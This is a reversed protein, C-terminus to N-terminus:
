SHASASDVSSRAPGKDLVDRVTRGLVDLSFPKQLFATRQELVGVRIVADDTYGSVFLVRLGPRLRALRQALEAGNMQPMIVDTVLLDIYDGYRGALDLAEVGNRAVLVRYGRAELAERVMSRVADEDEVVLITEAGHIAEGVPREPEEVATPEEVRPLYVTFTSGQGPASKVRIHGGARQVIGYVTSLGLGTGKGASKTTFFPEFLHALTHEDMGSGEDRVVLVVHPGPRADPDDKCELEAVEVGSVAISLPGGEPMADRANVALNLLVQELQGRDCRARLPTDALQITLAIQEGILRRLMNEMEAVVLNLDFANPAVVEKRSFTLLQRTLLAGRAAAKHVETASRYLPMGNPLQGLMLEAHGQIAALLNNFDHAV